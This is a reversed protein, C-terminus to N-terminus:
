TIVGSNHEGGISVRQFHPVFDYQEEKDDILNQSWLGDTTSISQQIETGPTTTQSSTSGLTIGNGYLQRDDKNVTSHPSYAVARKEDMEKALSLLM